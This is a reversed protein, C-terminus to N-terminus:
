FRVTEDFIYMIIQLYCIFLSIIEFWFNEIPDELILDFLGFLPEYINNLIEKIISKEKKLKLNLLSSKAKLM